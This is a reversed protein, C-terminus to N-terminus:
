KLVRFLVLLGTILSHWPNRRQKFLGNKFIRFVGSQRSFLSVIVQQDSRYWGAFLPKVRRLFGRIGINAGAVNNDHQRYRIFSRDDFFWLFGSFRAFAYILWDHSSVAYCIPHSEVFVKFASILKYTLVYTCGASASQYLFDVSTQSDSKYITLERGDPFFATLNSSYGDFNSFNLIEFASFLKYEDWIDDQDSLAIYDFGSIDCESILRYFNSAASGFSGGYPLLTVNRYAKAFNQCILLSNDSCYDVSILIHVVVHKQNIISLIQKELYLEGNYAALLVLFSNQSSM